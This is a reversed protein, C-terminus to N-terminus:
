QAGNGYFGTSDTKNSLSILTDKLRPTVALTCIEEFKLGKGESHGITAQIAKVSVINFRFIHM